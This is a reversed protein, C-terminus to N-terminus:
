SSPMRAPTSTTPSSRWPTSDRLAKCLADTLATKGSGVPGGIGVRLPGHPSARFVASSPAPSPANMLSLAEYIPNRAADCVLRGHAGRQGSGRARERAGYRHGHDGRARAPGHRRARRKPRAPDAQRRGLGSQGRLRAPLRHRELAPRHRARRLRCRRRHTPCPPCAMAQLRDLAPCPWAKVVAALFARGQQATELRLEAAPQFAMAHESLAALRDRRGGHGGALGPGPLDRRRAAATASSSRSGIASSTPRALWGAEVATELGHSYTYAGIPFAPSLWALLRQLQGDTLAPPPLAPADFPEITGTIIIATPGRNPSSPPRSGSRALSRPGGADGRDRSRPPDALHM